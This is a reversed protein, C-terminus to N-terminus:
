VYVGIGKLYQHVAFWESDGWAPFRGPRYRWWQQEWIPPSGDEPPPQSAFWRRVRYEISKANSIADELEAGARDLAEALERLDRAPYEMILSSIRHLGSSFETAASSRWMEFYAGASRLRNRDKEADYMESRLRRAVARFEEPNGRM